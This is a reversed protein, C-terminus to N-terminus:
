VYEAIEILNGDPDALYVSLIPGAAGTREVNEEIPTIGKRKLHVLVETLSTESILCLDASGPTPRRAHPTFPKNAPHLNIKQQGFKLSKRNDGFTIVQMGLIDQYFRCSAEIDNVTLVLHDLHSLKM